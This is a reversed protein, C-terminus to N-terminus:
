KNKVTLMAGHDDQLMMMIALGSFMCYYSVLGEACSFTGFPFSTPTTSAAAFEVFTFGIFGYMFALRPVFILSEVIDVVVASGFRFCEKCSM